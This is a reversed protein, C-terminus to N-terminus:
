LFQPCAKLPNSLARRDSTDPASGTDLVVLISMGKKETM